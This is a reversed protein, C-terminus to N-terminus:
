RPVIRPELRVDPTRLAEFRPSQLELGREVGRRGLWEREVRVGTLAVEAGTGLELAARRADDGFFTATHRPITRDFPDVVVQTYFYGGPGLKLEPSLAVRGRVEASGPKVPGNRDAFPLPLAYGPPLRNLHMRESTLFDAFTHEKAEILQYDGLAVNDVDAGPRTVKYRPEGDSGTKWVLTESDAQGTGNVAGSRCFVVAPGRWATALFGREELCAVFQRAHALEEEASLQSGALRARIGLPSPLCEFSDCVQRWTRLERVMQTQSGLGEAALFDCLPHTEGELGNFVEGRLGGRNALLASALPETVAKYQLEAGHIARFVLTQAPTQAGADAARAYVRSGDRLDRVAEFGQAEMFSTFRTRPSRAFYQEQEIREGSENLDGVWSQLRELRGPSLATSQRWAPNLVYYGAADGAPFHLDLVVETRVGGGLDATTEFSAAHKGRVAEFGGSLLAPLKSADAGTADFTPAEFAEAIAPQKAM